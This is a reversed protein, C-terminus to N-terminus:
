AKEASTTQWIIDVLCHEHSSLTILVCDKEVTLSGLSNGFEDARYAKSIDRVCRIRTATLKSLCERVLVRLGCVIGSDNTLSAVTHVLVTQPEVTFFWTSPGSPPPGPVNDIKL